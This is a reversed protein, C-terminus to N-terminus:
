MEKSPLSPPDCGWAQALMSVPATYFIGHSGFVFSNNLIKFVVFRSVPCGKAVAADHKACKLTPATISKPFRVRTSSNRPALIIFHLNFDMFHFTQLFFTSSSYCLNDFISESISNFFHSIRLSFNILFLKRVYMIILQFFLYFRINFYLLFSSIICHGQFKM